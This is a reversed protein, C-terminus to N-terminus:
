VGIDTRMQLGPWSIENVGAYARERALEVTTGKGVVSLVRGGAVKMKGADVDTGAHFVMVDEPVNELGRIM